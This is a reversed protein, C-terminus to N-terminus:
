AGTLSQDSFLVGAARRGAHLDGGVDVDHEISLRAEALGYTRWGSSSGAAQQVVEARVVALWSGALVVVCGTGLGM